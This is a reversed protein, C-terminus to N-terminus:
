SRDMRAVLQYSAQYSTYLRIQRTYAPCWDVRFAKSEDFWQEASHLGSVLLLAM